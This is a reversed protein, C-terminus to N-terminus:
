CAGEFLVLVADGAHRVVEAYPGGQGGELPEEGM